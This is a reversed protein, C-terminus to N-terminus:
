AAASAKRTTSSKKSKRKLYEKVKKTKDGSDKGSLLHVIEESSGPIAAELSSLLDYPEKAFLAESDVFALSQNLKPSPPMSVVASPELSDMDLHVLSSPSASEGCLEQLKLEPMMLMVPAIVESESADSVHPQQLPCPIAHPSFAGYLGEDGAEASGVGLEASPSGEHAGPSTGLAAGARVLFCEVRALCDQLKSRLLMAQEALSPRVDGTALLEPRLQPRPPPRQLPRPRVVGHTQETHRVQVLPPRPATRGTCCKAKHGVQRCNNCRLSECCISAWHGAEHCRHCRGNLGTGPKM